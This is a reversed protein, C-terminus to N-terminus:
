SRWREMMQHEFGEVHHGIRGSDLQMPHLVRQRSSLSVLRAVITLYHGVELSVLSTRQPRQASVSTARSSFLSTRSRMVGVRVVIMSRWGVEGV